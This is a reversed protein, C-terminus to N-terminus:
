KKVLHHKVKLLNNLHILLFYFKLLFILYFRQTPCSFVVFKKREREITLTELVDPYLEAFEKDFLYM